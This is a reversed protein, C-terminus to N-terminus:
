KLYYNLGDEYPKLGNKICWNKMEDTLVSIVRIDNVYKNEALAKFMNTLIGQRRKDKPIEISSLEVCIKDTSKFQILRIWMNLEYGKSPDIVRIARNFNELTTKNTLGSSNLSNEITERIHEAPTLEKNM